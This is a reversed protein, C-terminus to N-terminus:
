REGGFWTVEPWIMNMVRGEFLSCLMLGYHSAMLSYGRTINEVHFMTFSFIM